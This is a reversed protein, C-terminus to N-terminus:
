KFIILLPGAIVDALEGLLYSHMDDLGMSKHIGLWSSYERVQDEDVLAIDKKSWVEGPRQSRPNRFSLRAILSQPSSPMRIAKEIDKTVLDRMKNLLHTWMKGLRRKTVQTGM